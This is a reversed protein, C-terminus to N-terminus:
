NSASKQIFRAFNGGLAYRGTLYHPVGYFLRQVVGYVCFGSCVLFAVRALDRKFAKNHLRGKLNM